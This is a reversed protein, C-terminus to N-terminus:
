SVHGERADVNRGAGEQLPRAALGLMVGGREIPVDLREDSAACHEEIQVRCTAEMAAARAQNVQIGVEASRM